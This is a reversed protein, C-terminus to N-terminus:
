KNKLYFCLPATPILALLVMCWAEVWSFPAAFFPPDLVPHDAMWLREESSNQRLLLPKLENVHQVVASPGGALEFSKVVEPNAFEKKLLMRFVAVAEQKSAKPHLAWGLGQRQLDRCNAWQDGEHPVCAIPLGASVAEYLSHIGGHVVALRVSPSQLWVAQDRMAPVVHPSSMQDSDSCADILVAAALGIETLAQLIGVPCTHSKTGFAVMAGINTGADTHNSALRSTLSGVLKVRSPYIQALQLAKPPLIFTPTGQLLFSLIYDRYYENWSPGPSEALGPADEHTGVMLWSSFVLASFQIRRSLETMGRPISLGYYFWFAELADDDSSCQVHISPLGLRKAFFPHVADVVALDFHDKDLSPMVQPAWQANIEQMLKQFSEGADFRAHFIKDSMLDATLITLNGHLDRDKMEGKVISAARSELLTVSHGDSALAEAVRRMAFAHSHAPPPAANVLISLGTAGHCINSLWFIFAAVFGYFGHNAM